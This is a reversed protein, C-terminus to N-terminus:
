KYVSKDAPKILVVLKEITANKELLVKRIGDATYNTGIPGELPGNTLGMYYILKNDEAMVITLTKSAAVGPVETTDVIDEKVPLNIEMTQPKSFTTTLMFFTVLLFGLDVMPTLDIKTSMKKRGKKKGKKHGSDQQALEAM